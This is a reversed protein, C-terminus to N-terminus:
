FVDAFAVKFALLLSSALFVAICTTVFREINTSDHFPNYNEMREMRIVAIWAFGFSLMALAAIVREGDTPEM